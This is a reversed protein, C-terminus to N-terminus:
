LIFPYTVALFNAIMALTVIVIIQGHDIERSITAQRQYLRLAFIWLSFQQIIFVRDTGQYVKEDLFILLFLFLISMICSFGMRTPDSFEHKWYSYEIGKKTQATKKSSFYEFSCELGLFVFIMGVIVCHFFLLQVYTWFNDPYIYRNWLIVSMSTFVILSCTLEPYKVWFSGNLPRKKM